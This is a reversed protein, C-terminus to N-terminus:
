IHQYCVFLDSTWMPEAIKSKNIVLNEWRVEKLKYTNMWENMRKNTWEQEWSCELLFTKRKKQILDGKVITVYKELEVYEM